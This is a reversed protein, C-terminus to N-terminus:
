LSPITIDSSKSRPFASKWYGERTKEYALFRILGGVYLERLREKSLNKTEIVVRSFIYQEWDRTLIRIGLEDLQQYILTGPYPTLLSLMIRTAGITLLHEAFEMTEKVTEETDQPHGVMIGCFIAEIGAMASARVADEVQKLTTRKGIGKLIKESGSEVGFQIAGCGARKLAFATEQTMQAARCFCSWRMKFGLGEIGRCISVVRHHDWNFTDDNFDFGEIGYDYYLHEIEELVRNVSPVRYQHGFIM